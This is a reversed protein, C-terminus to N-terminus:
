ETGERLMKQVRTDYDMVTGGTTMGRGDHHFYDGGIVFAREAVEGGEAVLHAVGRRLTDVSIPTDWPRDGTEQPWALKAIHPDYVAVVQLIDGSSQPKPHAVTKRKATAGAILAEVQEQTSPGQKLRFRAVIRFNQVKRIKGENDRVSVEYMSTEPRDVEYKTLDIKARAVLEDLTKVQSGLATVSLGDGTDKVEITQDPVTPPPQTVGKQNLEPNPNAVLGLKDKRMRIGAITRRPFRPPWLKLVKPMPIGSVEVCERLYADEEPTWAERDRRVPM